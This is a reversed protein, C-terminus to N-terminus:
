FEWLMHALFLGIIIILFPFLFLFYYHTSICTGLWWEKYNQRNLATLKKERRIERVRMKCGGDVCISGSGTTGLLWFERQFIGRLAADIADEGRQAQRFWKREGLWCWCNFKEVTAWSGRREGEVRWTLSRSLEEELRRRKKKAASATSEEEGELIEIEEAAAASLDITGSSWIERELTTNEM